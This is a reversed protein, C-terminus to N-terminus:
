CNIPLLLDSSNLFIFEMPHLVLFMAMSFHSIAIDFDFDDRKNYVKTSVTDNSITLHMNLFLAVIDSTNTKNLQLEAPYIQCVM